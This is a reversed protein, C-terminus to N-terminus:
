LKPVIVIWLSQLFMILLTWYPIKGMKMLLLHLNKKTSNFLWPAKKEDTSCFFENVYQLM